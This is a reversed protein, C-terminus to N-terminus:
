VLAKLSLDRRNRHIITPAILCIVYVLVPLMAQTVAYAGSIRRDAGSALAVAETTLTPVRGAGIILTPLYQAFSVAFGLAFATAIPGLLIPLKLKFLRESRGMGLSAGIRDYRPDLSRWTQALALYIYPFVILVHSYIVLTMFSQTPMQLFVLNLGFTFAVQPIVLPLLIAKEAFQLVKSQHTDGVQLWVICTMLSLGAAGLGIVTSNIIAEVFSPTLNEWTRLTLREPFISPFSWRWSFSWVLMLLLSLIGFGALTITTAAVASTIQPVGRFNSRGVLLRKGIVGLAKAAGLLLAYTLAVLCMLLLSGAAAPHWNALDPNGFLKTIFMAMTPPNTPGLIAAVDVVSMSYALVILFPFRLRRWVQPLILLLWVVTSHYGLSRGLKLQEQLKLHAVNSALIVYFFPAEKVILGLALSLGYSDNVLSQDFPTTVALANAILRMLWGSPALLFALGIALAAHPISLFVALLGVVSKRELWSATVSFTMFALLFSLTTALISSLLTALVSNLMGPEHLFSLFHSTSFANQASWPAYGLATALTAFLAVLVPIVMVLIIMGSFLDSTNKRVRM